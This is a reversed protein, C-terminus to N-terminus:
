IWDEGESAYEVMHPTPDYGAIVDRLTDAAARTEREMVVEVGSQVTSCSTSYQGVGCLDCTMSYEQLNDLITFGYEHKAVVHGCQCAHLFTTEQDDEYHQQVSLIDRIGCICCGTYNCLYAGCSYTATARGPCVERLCAYCM